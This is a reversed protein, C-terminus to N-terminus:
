AVSTMQLCIDACQRCAKACIRCHEMGMVAHKECEEACATCIDACLQCYADASRGDLLMIEAASRCAAASEFDLRICVTLAAVDKEELCADACQYCMAACYVCADICEQFKPYAMIITKYYPVFFRAVPRLAAFLEVPRLAAFLYRYGRQLDTQDYGM